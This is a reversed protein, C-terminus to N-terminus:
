PNSAERESTKTLNTKYSSAHDHYSKVAGTTTAQHSFHLSKSESTEQSRKGRRRKNPGEGEKMELKETKIEIVNM